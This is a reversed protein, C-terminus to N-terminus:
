PVPKLINNRMINKVLIGAYNSGLDEPAPPDFSAMQVSYILTGGAVEYINNKWFWSTHERFNDYYPYYETIANYYLWFDDERFPDLLLIIKGAIDHMERSKDQLYITLVVDMSDLLLIKRITDKPLSRFTGSGYCSSASFAKCGHKALENVVYKEMTAQLTSDQEHIVALVLVKKYNEPHINTGKWTGTIRSTACQCMLLSIATYLFIRRM